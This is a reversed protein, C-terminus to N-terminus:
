TRYVNTCFGLNPLGGHTGLLLTDGKGPRLPLNKLFEAADPRPFNGLSSGLFLFHLPPHEAQEEEEFPAPSPKITDEPHHSTPPTHTSLTTDQELSETSRYDSVTRNDDVSDDPTPSHRRPPQPTVMAERDFTHLDRMEAELGGCTTAAGDDDVEEDPKKALGGNRIFAVGGDFTGWMGKTEVKGELHSGITDSVVNLTRELEKRELDLAYYQIPSGNGRAQHAEALALLIHSTKRLSRVRFVM